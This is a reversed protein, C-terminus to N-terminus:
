TKFDEIYRTNMCKAINVCLCKIKNKYSNYMFSENIEIKSCKSM